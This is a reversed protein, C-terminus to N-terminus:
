FNFRKAIREIYLTKGKLPDLQLFVGNLICEGEALKWKVPLGTLFKELILNPDLGLISNLPGVMGVDSIYATKGAYIREDATQVHTHTGLVASVRDKLFWGMALKESTAEAHFDVIINPTNRQLLAIERAATQFPCDIPPMFIRGQLNLIGVLNVGCRLLLSGKGPVNPSMNAPRLLREEKDIIEFIEKRDWIHNGSTIVDIGCNFLEEMVSPTLGKGGAGNEGNAIVLDIKYKEKLEPLLKKVAERGPSGVIDGLFLINM